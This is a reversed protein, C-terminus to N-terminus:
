IQMIAHNFYVFANLIINLFHIFNKQTIYPYKLHHIISRLELDFSQLLTFDTVSLSQNISTCVQFIVLHFNHQVQRFSHRYLSCLKKHEFCVYRISLWNSSASSLPWYFMWFLKRSTVTSEDRKNKNGFWIFVM